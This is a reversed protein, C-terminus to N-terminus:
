IVVTLTLMWYAGVVIATTGFMEALAISIKRVLKM